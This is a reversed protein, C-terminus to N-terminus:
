IKKTMRLGDIEFGWKKYVSIAKKNKALVELQCYSIENKKLWSYFKNRLLTAYGRGQYHKSVMMNDIYGIDGRPAPKIYGHLFAVVKHDIRIGYFFHSRKFYEKLFRNILRQNYHVRYIPFQVFGGMIGEEEEFLSIIEKRYLRILKCIM